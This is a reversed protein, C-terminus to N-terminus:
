EINFSLHKTCNFLPCNWENKDRQILTISTNLLSNEFPEDPLISKMVKKLFSGHSVVLVNADPHNKCIEDIFALGRSFVNEDSEM